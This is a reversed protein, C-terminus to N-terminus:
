YQGITIHNKQSIIHIPTLTQVSKLFHSFLNQHKNSSTASHIEIAQEIVAKIKESWYNSTMITSFGVSYVYISCVLLYLFYTQTSKNDANALSCLKSNTQKDNTTFRNKRTNSRQRHPMAFLYKLHSDFLKLLRSNDIFIAATNQEITWLFLTFHKINPHSNRNMPKCPKHM